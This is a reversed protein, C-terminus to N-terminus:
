LGSDVTWLESLQDEFIIERPYHHFLPYDYQFILILFFQRGKNLAPLVTQTPPNPGPGIERKIIWVPILDERLNWL